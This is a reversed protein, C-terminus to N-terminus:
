AEGEIIAAEERAARARAVAILQAAEQRRAAIEEVTLPDHVDLTYPDAGPPQKGTKIRAAWIMARLEAEQPLVRLPWTRGMNCDRGHFRCEAADLAQAPVKDALAALRGRLSRGSM